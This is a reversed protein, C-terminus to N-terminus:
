EVVKEITFFMVEELNIIISSKNIFTIFKKDFNKNIFDKVFDEIELESSLCTKINTNDTFYFQLKYNNM